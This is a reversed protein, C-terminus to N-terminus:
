ERDTLFDDVMVGTEFTAHTRTAAATAAAHGSPGPQASAHSGQQQQQQQRIMYEVSANGPSDFVGLRVGMPRDSLPRSISPRVESSASEAQPRNARSSSRDADGGSPLRELSDDVLGASLTSPHDPLPPSRAGSAAATTRASAPLHSSPNASRQQQQQQQAHVQMAVQQVQMLQTSLMALQEHTGTLQARMSAYAASNPPAAGVSAAQMYEAQREAQSRLMAIQSALQNIQMQLGASQAQLDHASMSQQQQQTFTLNPTDGASPPMPTASTILGPAAPSNVMSMPQSVAHFYPSPSDYFPHMMPSLLMPATAVPGYPSFSPTTSFLSPLPEMKTSDPPQLKADDQPPRRTTTVETEVSGSHASTDRSAIDLREGNTQVTWSVRGGSSTSSPSAASSSSPSPVLSPGGRALAPISSTYLDTSTTTTGLAAGHSIISASHTSVTTNSDMMHSSSAVSPTNSPKPRHRHAAEDSADEDADLAHKHRNHQRHHDAAPAHAQHAPPSVPAVVGGVSRDRHPGTEGKVKPHVSVFGSNVAGVPPSPVAMAVLAAVPASVEEGAADMFSADSLSGEGVPYERNNSAAAAHGAEGSAAQATDEDMSTDDQADRDHFQSFPDASVTAIAAAAAAVIAVGNTGDHSSATGSASGSVNASEFQSSSSALLALADSQPAESFTGDPSYAPSSAYPSVLPLGTKPNLAVAPQGNDQDRKKCAACVCVCLCTPCIWVEKEAQSMRDIQLGYLRQMCSACFKKRCKRRRASDPDATCTLLLKLDRMTKCNHCSQKPGVETRARSSASAISANSNATASGNGSGGNFAIPTAPLITKVATHSAPQGIVSAMMPQCQMQNLLQGFSPASDATPVGAARMHMPGAGMRSSSHMTNAAGIAGQMPSLGNQAMIMGMPAQMAGIAGHNPSLHSGMAAHGPSASRVSGHMPSSVQSNLGPLNPSHVMAGIAATMPSHILGSQPSFSQQPPAAAQLRQFQPSDHQVCMSIAMLKCLVPEVQLDGPDLTSSSADAGPLADKGAADGTKACGTIPCTLGVTSHLAVCAFCARHQCRLVVPLNVEGGCIACAQESLITQVRAVVHPSAPLPSKISLLKTHVVGQVYLVLQTLVRSTFLPQAFLKALYAKESQRRTHFDYLKLLKVIITANITGFKQLREIQMLGRLFHRLLDLVGSDPSYGVLSLLDPLLTRAHQAISSWLSPHVEKLTQLFMLSIQPSLNMSPFLTGAFAVYENSGITPPTDRAAGIAVQSPSLQGASKKAHWQQIIPAYYADHERKIKERADATDFLRADIQLDAQIQQRLDSETRLYFAEVKAIEQQLLLWFIDRLKQSSPTAGARAESTVGVFSKPASAALSEEGFTTSETPHQELFVIRKINQRLKTYDIFSPYWSADGFKIIENILKQSYAVGGGGGPVGGASPPFAGLPHSAPSGGLLHLPVPSKASSPPFSPVPYPQHPSSLHGYQPSPHSPLHQQQQQQQMYQQQQQQQQQMHMYQNQNMMQGMPYVPAGYPSYPPALGAMGMTPPAATMPALGAAQSWQQHHMMQQHHAADM